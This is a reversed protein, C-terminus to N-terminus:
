ILLLLSNNVVTLCGSAIARDSTFASDYSTMIILLYVIFHKRFINRNSKAIEKSLIDDYSVPYNAM